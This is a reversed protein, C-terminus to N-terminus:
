QLTLEGIFTAKGLDVGNSRLIAYATTVHFYFNPTSLQVMYDLAKMSKGPMWPLPVSRSDAGEFDSEKFSSLYEVVSAIRARCEDLTCETDPHKPPEKGTLRAALFKAADCASGIQRPFPYMDPALRSQAFVNADFSKAKAHAIARELWQDMNQLMKKQQQITAYVLSM